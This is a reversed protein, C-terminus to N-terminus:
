HILHTRRESKLLNIENVSIDRLAQLKSTFKTTPEIDVPGFINMPIWFDVPGGIAVPGWVDVSGQLGVPKVPDVLGVSKVATETGAFRELDM